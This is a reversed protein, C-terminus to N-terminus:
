NHGIENWSGPIQKMDNGVATMLSDLSALNGGNDTTVNISKPGSSTQYTIELNTAKAVPSLQFALKLSTYWSIADVANNGSPGTSTTPGISPFVTGKHARSLYCSNPAEFKFFYWLNTTQGAAKGYLAVVSGANPPDTTPEPKSLHEAVEYGGVAGVVLGGLASLVSTRFIERRTESM